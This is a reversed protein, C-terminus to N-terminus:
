VKGFIALRHKKLYEIAKELRSINDKFQGLGHNCNSCLLGRVLTTEHCHDVHLFPPTARKDSVPPSSCIACLGNQEDFLKDYTGPQLGYSRDIRKNRATRGSRTAARIRRLMRVCAKCTPYAKGGRTCSFEEDDKSEGCTDCQRLPDIVYQDYFNDQTSM